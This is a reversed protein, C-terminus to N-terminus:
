IAAKQTEKEAANIKVYMADIERQYKKLMQLVWLSEAVIQVHM